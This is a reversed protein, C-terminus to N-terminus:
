WRGSKGQTNKRSALMELRQKEERSLSDIGEEMVRRLVDDTSPMATPLPPPIGAGSRRWLKTLGAGALAGGLHALHGIIPMINLAACVVSFVILGRGLTKARMRVPLVFFLLAQLPVEPYSTTFALLIGCVAGSAGILESNLPSFATQLIGGVIGSVFYLLLFKKRGLTFEVIPGIFWLGLVNMALHLLNAHLFMHTVLTWWLGSKLAYGSLGFWRVSSGMGVATELVFGVVMAAALGITVPSRRFKRLLDEM